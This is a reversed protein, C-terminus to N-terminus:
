WIDASRAYKAYRQVNQADRRDPIKSTRGEPTKRIKM